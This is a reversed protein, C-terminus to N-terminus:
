DLGRLKAHTGKIKQRVGVLLLISLLGSIEFCKRPRACDGVKQTSDPSEHPQAKRPIM